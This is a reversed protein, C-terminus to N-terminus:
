DEKERVLVMAGVLEINSGVVYRVAHVKWITDDETSPDLSITEGESPVTPWVGEFLVDLRRFSGTGITINTAAM